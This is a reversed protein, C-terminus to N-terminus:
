WLKELWLLKLHDVGWEFLTVSLATSLMRSFTDNMRNVMIRTLSSSIEQTLSKGYLNLVGQIGRASAKPNLLVKSVAKFGVNNSLASKLSNEIVKSNQVSSGFGLLFNMITMVAAKKLNVKSFNGKSKILDGGVSGVLGLVGSIIASGITWIGSFVILGSIGDITGDLLVQM